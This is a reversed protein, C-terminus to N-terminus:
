PCTKNVLLGDKWTFTCIGEGVTTVQQVLDIGQHEGSFYSYARMYCDEPITVNAKTVIEMHDESNTWWRPTYAGFSKYVLVGTCSLVVLLAFAILNKKM